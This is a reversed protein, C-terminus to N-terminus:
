HVVCVDLLFYLVASSLPKFAYDLALYECILFIRIKPPSEPMESLLILRTRARLTSTCSRAQLLMAACLPGQHLLCFGFKNLLWDKVAEARTVAGRSDLATVMEGQVFCDEFM